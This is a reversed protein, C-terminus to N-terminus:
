AEMFKSQVQLIAALSFHLLGKESTDNRDLYLFLKRLYKEASAYDKIYLYALIIIKMYIVRFMTNALSGDIALEQSHLIILCEKIVENAQLVRGTKCLFEAVVLGICSASLAEEISDM